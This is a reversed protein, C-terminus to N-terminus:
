FCVTHLDVVKMQMFGKLVASLLEVCLTVCSPFSIVGWPLIGKMFSHLKFDSGKFEM